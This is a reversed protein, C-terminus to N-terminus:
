AKLMENVAETLGKMNWEQAQRLIKKLLYVNNPEVSSLNGNRMYYLVHGFAEEDKDLFVCINGEKDTPL